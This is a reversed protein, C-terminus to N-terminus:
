EEEGRGPVDVAEFDLPAPGALPSLGIEDIALPPETLPVVRLPEARLEDGPWPGVPAHL